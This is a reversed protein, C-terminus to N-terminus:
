VVSKRDPIEGLKTAGLNPVDSVQLSGLGSEAISMDAIDPNSALYQSLMEQSGSGGIREVLNPLDVLAYDGLFPVDGVLDSLTLDRLFPVDALQFNEIDIGTIQGIGDMTLQEIGIGTYMLDGLKIVESPFQGAIWERAPDYPSEYGAIAEDYHDVGAQGEAQFITDRYGLMFGDGEFAPLDDFSLELIQAELSDSVDPSLDQASVPACWICLWILFVSLLYFLRKM